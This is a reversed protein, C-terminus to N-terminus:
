APTKIDILELGVARRGLSSDPLPLGGDQIDWELLLFVELVVAMKEKVEVFFM